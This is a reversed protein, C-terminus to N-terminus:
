LFPRRNATLHRLHLVTLSVLPVVVAGAMLGGALRLAMLGGSVPRVGSLKFVLTYYLTELVAALAGFVAYTAAQDGFVEDRLWNVGAALAAFFPISLGLPVPCFADHLLGAFVAAYLMRVYDTHLAICIVLGTLLPLELSGFANWVPLLTQLFAGAVLLLTIFRRSM